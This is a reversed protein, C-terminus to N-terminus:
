WQQKSSLLAMAETIVAETSLFRGRYTRLFDRCRSHLPDTEDFLGILFGSDVIVSKV